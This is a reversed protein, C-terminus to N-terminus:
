QRPNANRWAAVFEDVAERAAQLLPAVGSSPVLGLRPGASWTTAPGTRTVDRGLRVEQEVDLEILFIRINKPTNKVTIELKLSPRGPTGAREGETLIRIGAARLRSEVENRLVAGTLGERQVDDDDPDEVSVYVGGLGVLTAPAQDPEGASPTALLVMTNIMLIAVFLPEIVM